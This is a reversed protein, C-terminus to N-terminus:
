CVAVETRMTPSPLEIVRRNGLEPLLIVAVGISLNDSEGSLCFQLTRAYESQQRAFM